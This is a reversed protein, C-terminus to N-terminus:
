GDTAPSENQGVVGAMLLGLQGKTVQDTSLIGMIQGEYVVAICGSLIM